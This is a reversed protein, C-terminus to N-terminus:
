PSPRGRQSYGMTRNAALNRAEDSDANARLIGLSDISSSPSGLEIGIPDYQGRAVRGGSLFRAGLRQATQRVATKKKPPARM